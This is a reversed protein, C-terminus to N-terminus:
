LKLYSNLHRRISYLTYFHRKNKRSLLARLGRCLQQDSYDNLLMHLAWMNIKKKSVHLTHFKYIHIQQSIEFLVTILDNSLEVRPYTYLVKIGSSLNLNKCELLNTNIFYVNYFETDTFDTGRLDCGFFVSDSIKAGKFSTKKLNVSIFDIGTLSANRFNCKTICSARFNVNEITADKFILNHINSQYSYKNCFGRYKVPSNALTFRVTKGSKNRNLRKFKLNSKRRKRRRSM